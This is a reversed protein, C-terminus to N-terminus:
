VAALMVAKCILVNMYPQCFFECLILVENLQMHLGPLGWSPISQLKISHSSLLIHGQM